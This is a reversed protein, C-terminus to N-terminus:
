FINSEGKVQYRLAMMGSVFLIISIIVILMVIHFIKKNARRYM